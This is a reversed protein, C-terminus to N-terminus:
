RSLAKGVDLATTLVELAEHHQPLDVYFATNPTLSFPTQQLGFHRLYLMILEESVM